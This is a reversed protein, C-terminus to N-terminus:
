VEQILMWFLRGEHDRERLRLIKTIQQLPEPHRITFNLSILVGRGMPSFNWTSHGKGKKSAVIYGWEHSTKEIKSMSSWINGKNDIEIRSIKLYMMLTVPLRDLMNQSIQLSWEYPTNIILWSGMNMKLFEKICVLDIIKIPMSGGKIVWKSKM